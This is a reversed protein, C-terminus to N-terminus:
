ANMVLRIIDNFFNMDIDFFEDLKSINEKSQQEDCRCNEIFKLLSERNNVFPDYIKQIVATVDKFNYMYPGFCVIKGFRIAEIPNHGGIKVFSGGIFVVSSLKYFTGMQGLLDVIVISQSSNLINYQNGLIHSLQVYDFQHQVCLDTVIKTRHPHRPAIVFRYKPYLKWLEKIVQFIKDEEGEHTSAFTVWYADEEFNFLHRFLDEEINLPDSFNKLNGLYYCEKVRFFNLREVTEVNQAICLDFAQFIEHAISLFRKWRLFSKDSIRANLLIVKINRSKLHALWNPWIESEVFIAKEPKWFNLFSIIWTPVDAPILQHFVRETTIQQILNSATLTTSTLLIQVKLDTELIKSVLKKISLFEGVSAVHIWIRNPSPTINGYKQSICGFRENVQYISDKKFCFCRTYFFLRIVPSLIQALAAYIKLAVYAFFFIIKQRLNLIFMLTKKRM